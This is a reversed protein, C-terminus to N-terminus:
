TVFAMFPERKRERDSVKAENEIHYIRRVTTNVKTSHSVWRMQLM